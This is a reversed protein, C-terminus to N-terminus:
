VRSRECLDVRRDQKRIGQSSIPLARLVWVCTEHPFRLPETKPHDSLCTGNSHPFFVHVHPSSSLGAPHALHCAQMFTPALSSLPCSSTPSYRVTFPEMNTAPLYCHISPHMYPAPIPIRMIACAVVHNRRDTISRKKLHISSASLKV